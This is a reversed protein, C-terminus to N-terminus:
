VETQKKIANEINTWLRGAPSAPDHKEFIKTTHRSFYTSHLILTQLATAFQVMREQPLRDLIELVKEVHDLMDDRIDYISDEDMIFSKHHWDQHGSLLFLKIHQPQFTIFSEYASVALHSEDCMNIAMHAGSATFIMVDGPKLLCVRHVKHIWSLEDPGLAGYPPKAFIKHRHAELLDITTTGHEWVGLLKYGSWQKGFNSWFVQDSHLGMGSGDNGIFIGTDYRDWYLTGYDAQEGLVDKGDKICATKTSEGTIPHKYKNKFRLETLYLNETNFKRDKIYQIQAELNEMRPEEDKGDKHVYCIKGSYKTFLDGTFSELLSLVSKNKFIIHDLDKPIVNELGLKSIGNELIIAETTFDTYFLRKRFEDVDQLIIPAKSNDTLVERPWGTVDVFMDLEDSTLRDAM